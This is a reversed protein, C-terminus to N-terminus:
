RPAYASQRGHVRGYWGPKAVRRIDMGPTSRRQAELEGFVEALFELFARVLKSNRQGRAYAAFITPAELGEWDTLAPVLLGSALYRTITLDALRAVGAGGCAAEDVGIRDENLCRTRVDITRRHPGKEFIWRDLLVDASNRFVLCHHARLQEPDTPLGERRWYAPSACVILRTQALPRVLFDRNPPWGILLAIDVNANDIDKFTVVPKALLEVDAYRQLFRSIRPMVCQQALIPRMGVTLTGSLKQGRPALSLEVKQLDAAVRRSIEYYREGDATLSVGRNTRHFLAVGLSRELAGVLQTIAPTSVDLSRAAAAFSRAQVTRNFYQICRLKDM